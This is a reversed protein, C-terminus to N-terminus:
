TKRYERHLFQNAAPDNTIKMNPGDWLLKKGVRMAINGLLPTETLLGSHKIFDSGAPAGGRCANVWEHYQGPSRPLVKPAPGYAKRKTEPILLYNMMTGKDGVYIPSQISRGPELDEPRPPTFGSDHWTLTVPPMGERAPFEYQVKFSRPYVEPGIQPCTAEVSVPYQLKLAKFVTSLIHCGMDGLPGTGFDWWDRWRWPHYAPHYPRSPAPGLWLDWDLGEPVPPTETPRGAGAPPDWFRSGLVVHVQRVAGIAGDLIIEQTLRAEETAQGQNGLQTAVGARRAAETVQRTEKVTYALPKECYVHKRKALAAMTVVAHTHDPTAIVVADADERELLERYDAYARCAKYEGVGKLKAYHEDVLRRAPERGGLKQDKGQMWDWSIYGGGQRNVDCVAAVQVQDIQLFNYLDVHGQGGLGICALTTKDSPATQGEGGLVARPVLTFAAAAGMSGLFRRRSLRYANSKHGHGTQNKCKNM